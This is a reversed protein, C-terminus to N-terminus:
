PRTIIFEETVKTGSNKVVKSIPCYKKLDEKAKEIAADDADTTLNVTLLIEPFPVEIEETLSVGRRDFQADADVTMAKIEVGNKEACRHFIVNTCAILAAVLTETPTFGLNTGGRAVPEDITSELDRSSIDTRSHTPCTGELKMNVIMKPKATTM